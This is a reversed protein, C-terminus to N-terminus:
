NHTWDCKHGEAAAVVTLLLATQLFLSIRNIRKMQQKNCKSRRSRQQVPETTDTDPSREEWRCTRGRDVGPPVFCTMCLYLDGNARLGSRQTMQEKLVTTLTCAVPACGM